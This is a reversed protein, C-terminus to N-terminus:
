NHPPPAAAPALGLDRSIVWALNRLLALSLGMVTYYDGCIKEVLLAGQGQIGYAGAKDFPEGCDLYAEIETASLQHFTVECIDVGGVSRGSKADLLFEGTYVQHTRGSLATLMARAEERHRPKGFLTDNLIVVTDAALILQDPHLAAAARAKAAANLAVLAAADREPSLESLEAVDVPCPLPEVGIQRLIELRRPSASALVIQREAFIM